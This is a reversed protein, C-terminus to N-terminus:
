EPIELASKEQEICRHTDVWVGKFEKFNERTVGRLREMEKPTLLLENDTLPDRAYGGNELARLVFPTTMAQVFTKSWKMRRVIKKTAEHRQQVTMMVPDQRKGRAIEKMKQAFDARLERQLKEERLEGPSLRTVNFRLLFNRWLANWNREKM